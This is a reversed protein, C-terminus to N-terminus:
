GIWAVMRQTTKKRATLFSRRLALSTAFGRARHVMRLSDWVQRPDRSRMHALQSGEVRLIMESRAEAMKSASRKALAKELE